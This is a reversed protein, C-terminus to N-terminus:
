AKAQRRKRMASPTIGALAAKQETTLARHPNILEEVLDARQEASLRAKLIAIVEEDILLSLLQARDGNNAVM